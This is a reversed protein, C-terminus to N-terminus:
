NTSRAREDQTALLKALLHVLLRKEETSLGSLDDTLKRQRVPVTAQFRKRGKDTLEIYASRRDAPHTKRTVLGDRALGLVLRTINTPTVDLSKAIEGMLMRSGPAGYLVRLVSFRAGSLEFEELIPAMSKVHAQNARTIMISAEYTLPDVWELLEQMRLAAAHVEGDEFLGDDALGITM